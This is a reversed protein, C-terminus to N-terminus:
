CVKSVRAQLQEDSLSWDVGRLATLEEESLQVGAKRAAAQPDKKIQERFGADGMWLDVLKGVSEYSM